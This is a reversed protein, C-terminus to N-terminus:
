LLDKSRFGITMRDKVENPGWAKDFSPYLLRGFAVIYFIVISNFLSILSFITVRERWALRIGPRKMTWRDLPPFEADVLYCPWVLWLWCRRTKTSPVKEVANPVEKVVVGGGEK